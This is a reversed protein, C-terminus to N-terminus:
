ILGEQHLYSKANRLFRRAANIYDAPSMELDRRTVSHDYDSINRDGRFKTLLDAYYAADPFNKPLAAIRQHDTPDTSFTGDVALRVARSAIYSAYYARSVKQRWANRGTARQAARLHDQSLLLLERVNRRLEAALSDIQPQPLIDALCRILKHPNGL